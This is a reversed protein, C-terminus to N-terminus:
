TVVPIRTSFTMQTTATNEVLPPAAQGEPGTNGAGLGPGVPNTLPQAPSNGNTLSPPADNVGTDWSSPNPGMAFDLTGGNALASSDLWVARQKKGNVQRGQVCISKTSNAPASVVLDGRA